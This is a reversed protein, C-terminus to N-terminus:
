SRSENVGVVEDKISVVIENNTSHQHLFLPVEGSRWTVNSCVRLPFRFRLHLELRCNEICLEAM